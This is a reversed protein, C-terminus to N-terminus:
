LLGELFIVFFFVEIIFLIHNRELRCVRLSEEDFVEVLVLHNLHWLIGFNNVICALYDLMLFMLSRGLFGLKLFLGLFDVAFPFTKAFLELKWNSKM